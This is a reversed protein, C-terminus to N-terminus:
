AEAAEGDLRVGERDALLRLIRQSTVIDARGEAVGARPRTGDTVM